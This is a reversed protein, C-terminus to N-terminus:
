LLKNYFFPSFESLVEDKGEIKSEQANSIKLDNLMFLAEWTTCHYLIRRCHLLCDRPWFSGRSFSIAVLELMRAQFMGHLATTWPNVFTLCSQACVIFLKVKTQRENIIGKYKTPIFRLSALSILSLEKTGGSVQFRNWWIPNENPPSFSLFHAYSLIASHQPFLPWPLYIQPLHTQAREEASGCRIKADRYQTTPM